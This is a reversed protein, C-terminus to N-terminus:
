KKRIDKEWDRFITILRYLRLLRNLRSCAFLFLRNRIDSAFVFSIIEIPANSLADLLFRDKTKAYAINVKQPDDINASFQDLISTNFSVIMDFLFRVFIDKLVVTYYNM